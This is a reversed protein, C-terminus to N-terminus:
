YVWGSNTSILIEKNKYKIYWKDKKKYCPCLKTMGVKGSDNNRWAVLANKGYFDIICLTKNRGKDVLIQKPEYGWKKQQKKVADFVEKSLEKELEESNEEYWNNKIYWEKMSSKWEEYSEERYKPMRDCNAGGKFNLLYKLPVHLYRWDVSRNKEFKKSMANKTKENRRNNADVM